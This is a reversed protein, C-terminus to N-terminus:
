EYFFGGDMLANIEKRVDDYCAANVSAERTQVYGSCSSITKVAMTPTGIAASVSSPDVNTDHYVVTCTVTWGDTNAGGGVGGICTPLYQAGNIMGLLGGTGAGVAAGASGAVAVGAASAAGGLVASMGQLPNINSAGIMYNSACNGNYKGIRRGGASVVAVIAGNVTIQYDIVLTTIGILQSAPYCVIGIYPLSLYIKTFQDNRRWDTAQWPITISVERFVKSTLNVKKGTQETKYEGLYIRDSTGPFISLALPLLLASKICDPAKGTSILTRVGTTLNHAIVGITEVMVALVEVIDTIGQVDPDPPIPLFDATDFWNNIDNLLASATAQDVAWLNASSKGVIGVMVFAQGYGFDLTASNTVTTTTTKQSLRTDVIETNSSTDYMVFASTAGIETKYTALVDLACHVEFIDNRVSVVDTIFYYWSDWQLYNWEFGDEVHFLFVPNKYSTPQKLECNLDTGQLQTPQLTSNKRKTFQYLTVTFAM